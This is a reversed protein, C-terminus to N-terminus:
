GTSPWRGATASTLGELRIVARDAGMAGAHWLRAADRLRPLGGRV